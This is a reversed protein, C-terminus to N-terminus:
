HTDSLIQHVMLALCEVGYIDPKSKDPNLPSVFKDTEGPGLFGILVIKGSIEKGPVKGNRLDEGSFVQFKHIGGTLDLPVIQHHKDLYRKARSSDYAFATAASFHYYNQGTYDTVWLMFKDSITLDTDNLRESSVFGKKVFLPIIPLACTSIVTIIAKGKIDEGSQHLRTPLVVNRRFEIASILDMDVQDGSYEPFAIDLAIVKAGLRNLMELEQTLNRKDPYGTNLLVISNASEFRHSQAPCERVVLISFFLLFKISNMKLLDVIVVQYQM